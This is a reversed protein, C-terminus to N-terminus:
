CSKGFFYLKGHHSVATAGNINQFMTDNSRVSWQRRIMNFYETSGQDNDKGSVIVVSDNYRAIAGQHHNNITDQTKSWVESEADFIWCHRPEHSDACAMALEDNINTCM